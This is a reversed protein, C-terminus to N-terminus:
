EKGERIEMLTRRTRNLQLSQMRTFQFRQHHWSMGNTKANDAVHYYNANTKAYDPLFDAYIVQMRNTPLPQMLKPNAAEPAREGIM